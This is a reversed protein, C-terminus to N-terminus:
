RATCGTSGRAADPNIFTVASSSLSVLDACSLLGLIGAELGSCGLRELPVSLGGLSLSEDPTSEVGLTEAFEGDDAKGGDTDGLELELGCCLDSRLLRLCCLRRESTVVGSSALVGM